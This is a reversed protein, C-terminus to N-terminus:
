PNGSHTQSTRLGALLRHDWSLMQRLRSPLRSGRSGLYHGLTRMLNDLPARLVTLPHTRWLGRDRAHRFDRLTIGAASLLAARVSSCLIYGFLKQFAFSEDFSRQLREVLSYDHSHFVTGEHSYAKKFGAEIIIQAWIQDEAFDVDPYPYTNWVSRRVLANNDSFFHLFQRYGVDQRYREADANWVIPDRAFGEFHLVLEQITFPNATPYALHRGFVGAITPDADATAVMAALWGTHAPLADHTILVAYEGQTMSIAFNRTKGHGYSAPPITILRVRPDQVQQVYEVTGDTSGSDIVLVDYAFDTGQALVATLVHRFHTGPNKTPIIVSAKM